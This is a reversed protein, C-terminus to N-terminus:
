IHILSLILAEKANTLIAHAKSSSIERITHRYNVKYIGSLGCSCRVFKRRTGQSVETYRTKHCRACIVKIMGGKVDCSKLQGAM